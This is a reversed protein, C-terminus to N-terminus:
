LNKLKTSEKQKELYEDIAWVYMKTIFLTLVFLSGSVLLVKVALEASHFVGFIPSTIIGLICGVCLTSLTHYLFPHKKELLEIAIGTKSKM